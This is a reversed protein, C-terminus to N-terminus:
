VMLVRPSKPEWVPAAVTFGADRAREPLEVARWRAEALVEAAQDASLANRAPEGVAAVAARFRTRADATTGPRPLSIALRTGATALARLHALMMRLVATDLYVALGECLMLSGADSDFGGDLLAAELGGQDLDLPLFTIQSADIQLRELRALKDAQTAPHDVEFWRVGPKAYRLARGDYGAGICAVQTVDRDLGNVVVRDFFRTRGQLYASMREEPTFERSDAVDRALRDDAAPDGFPGPLREFTLRYAAVRQATVSPAGERM